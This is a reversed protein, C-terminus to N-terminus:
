PIKGKRPLVKVGLQLDIQVPKSGRRGGGTLTDLKEVRKAGLCTNLRHFSGIVKWEPLRGLECPGSTFVGGEKRESGRILDLYCSPCSLGFSAALYEAM